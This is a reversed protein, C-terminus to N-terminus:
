GIVLGLIVSYAHFKFVHQGIQPTLILDLAGNDLDHLMKQNEDFRIIVDFALEPLQEELTQQFTEFCM